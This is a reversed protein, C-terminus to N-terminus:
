ATKCEDSSPPLHYVEVKPQKLGEGAGGCTCSLLSPLDCLQDALSPSRCFTEGQRSDFHDHLWLWNSYWCLVNSFDGIINCYSQVADM